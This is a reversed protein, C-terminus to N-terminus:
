GNLSTNSPTPLFCSSACLIEIGINRWLLFSHNHNSCRDTAYSHIHAFRSPRLIHHLSQALSIDDADASSFLVRPFKRSHLAPSDCSKEPGIIQVRENELKPLIQFVHVMIQVLWQCLMTRQAQSPGHPDALHPYAIVDSIVSGVAPVPLDKASAVDARWM